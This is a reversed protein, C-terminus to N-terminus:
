WAFAPSIDDAKARQKRCFRVAAAHLLIWGVLASM